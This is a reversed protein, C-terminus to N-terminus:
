PTVPTITEEHVRITYEADIPDTPPGDHKIVTFEFLQGNLSITKKTGDNATGEIKWEYTPLIGVDTRESRTGLEDITDNSCSLTGSIAIDPAAHGYIRTQGHDTRTEPHSVALQTGRMLAFDDNGVFLKVNQALIIKRVDGIVTM